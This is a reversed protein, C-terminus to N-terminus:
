VRRRAENVPRGSDHRRKDFLVALHQGLHLEFWRLAQIVARTHRDNDVM